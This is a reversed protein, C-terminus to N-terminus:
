EEQKLTNFRRIEDINHAVLRKSLIKTTTIGKGAGLHIKSTGILPKHHSINSTNLSGIISINKLHYLGNRQLGTNHNNLDGAVVDSNFILDPITNNSLEESQELYVCAISTLTKTLTNKLLIKIFRGFQCKTISVIEYSIRKSILIMTGKRRAFQSDARYIRYNRLFFKDDKNMFTEQIFAFDISSDLLIRSLLTRKSYARCSTVNWILIKFEEPASQIYPDILENTLSKISRNKPMKLPKIPSYHGALAKKTDEGQTLALFVLNNPSTSKSDDKIIQWKNSTYRSDELYVAFWTDLKVSLASLEIYGAFHTQKRLINIADNRTMDESDELILAKDVNSEEILDVTRQRFHDAKSRELNTAELISTYLCNGDAPVISKQFNMKGLKRIRLDLENPDLNSFEEELFTDDPPEEIDQKLNDQNNYTRDQAAQYYLQDELTKLIKQCYPCSKRCFKNFKRIPNNSHRENTAKSLKNWRDGTKPEYNENCKRCSRINCSHYNNITNDNYAQRAPNFAENDNRNDNNDNYQRKSQNLLDDSKLKNRQQSTQTKAENIQNNNSNTTINYCKNLYNNNAGSLKKPSNMLQPRSNNTNNNNMINLKNYEFALGDYKQQQGKVYIGCDNEYKSFQEMLDNNKKNLNFSKIQEDKLKQEVIAIQKNRDEIEEKLKELDSM